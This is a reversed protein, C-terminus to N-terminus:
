GEFSYWKRELVGLGPENICSPTSMRMYYGIIMRIFIRGRKWKRTIAESRHFRVKRASLPFSVPFVYGEIICTLLSGNTPLLGMRGIGVEYADAASAYLGCLVFFM